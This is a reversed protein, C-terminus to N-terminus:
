GKKKSFEYATKIIYDLDDYQPQWQLIMKAKDSSAILQDPDGERRQGIKFPVKRNTVREVSDVIEKVSYGHGYGLNFINSTHKKILYEAALIHAQVLDVVHIYDRICTGDFTNYDDGYIMLYERQGNLVELIIPILHTEPHHREGLNSNELAGAVNFYRLIIYNINYAEKVWKMMKEMALKTEGYPNIPNQDFEETIPMKTHMGYTAATSSFIINKINNQSMAKLLCEMGYVNNSYYNLPDKVSDPVISLAAFHIVCDIQHKKFIESVKEEDRLDVEYFTARSDIADKHGTSLNDIVIVEDGRDLLIKTAISGIYGAGGTVCLKM